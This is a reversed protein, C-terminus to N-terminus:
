KGHDWLLAEGATVKKETSCGPVFIEFLSLSVSGSTPKAAKREFLKQNTCKKLINAM